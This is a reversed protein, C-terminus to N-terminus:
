SIRTGILTGKTGAHVLKFEFNPWRKKWKRAVIREGPRAADDLLVTGGVPIREFLSDAAGRVYPHIAWPPGDVILLDIQPPLPGHDYWVGPWDGPSARFPTARLETEVGHENLWGRTAEVFGAHQDCSILRGGGNKQLARGVVLSSAGAGLEVVTQPRKAEIHDVLLHLFGTDAKWSGLYPLADHPLDLRELLRRKAEQTGGSLSRVLWPWGVMGFVIVHLVDSASRRADEPWISDDALPLYSTMERSTM